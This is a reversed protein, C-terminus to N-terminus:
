RFLDTSRDRILPGVSGSTSAYPLGRVIAVPVGNAKAMVLESAAALEDAVAINTVKLVNGFSDQTGRYDKIPDIGAVGIAFNAHGERWARGFTDSVIVALTSLGALGALEERIRHASADPDEPLLSVADEGPVNSADIGSNACVFGHKTETILIGRAADMRVIARSERLVLEILRPDRGSEDAFQRARASPEVGSLRVVRDEAKSVIKQTVVVIDGNEIPTRQGTAADAILKSLRDGVSVEPIGTLGIVEIRPPGEARQSAVTAEMVPANYCVQKRPTM